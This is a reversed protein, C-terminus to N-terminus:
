PQDSEYGGVIEIPEDDSGGVVDIAEDDDMILVLTPTDQPM